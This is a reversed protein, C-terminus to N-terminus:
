PLMITKFAYVLIINLYIIGVIMRGDRFTVEPTKDDSKSGLAIKRLHINRLVLVM